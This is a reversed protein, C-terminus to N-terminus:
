AARRNYARKPQATMDRTMYGQQAAMDRPMWGPAKDGPEREVRGSVVELELDQPDVDFKEGPTREKGGYWHATKCTRQM